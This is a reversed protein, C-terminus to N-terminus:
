PINYMVEDHQASEAQLPDFTFSEDNYFNVFEIPSVTILKEVDYAKCIEATHNLQEEKPYVMSFYDHSFYVVTDSGKILDELLVKNNINKHEINLSNDDRRM